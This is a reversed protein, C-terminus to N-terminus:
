PRRRADCPRRLLGRVRGPCLRPLVARRVRRRRAQVYSARDASWLYDLESVPGLRAWRPRVRDHDPHDAPLTLSTGRRPRHRDPHPPQEPVPRSGPQPDSRPRPDLRYFAHSSSRPSEDSRRRGGGGAHLWPTGRLLDVANPTAWSRTRAHPHQRGMVETPTSTPRGVVAHLSRAKTPPRRPRREALRPHGANAQAIEANRGISRPSGLAGRHDQPEEFDRAATASSAALLRGGLARRDLRTSRHAGQRRRGVM